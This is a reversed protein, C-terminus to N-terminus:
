NIKRVIGNKMLPVNFNLILGLKSKNLKIYTLLQAEHVPLINEVAKIELIIEAEVIIDARYANDILLEKYKIPIPVEEKYPLGNKDFEYCLCKRYTSELLGPGLFRHVEIALGIIKETLINLQELDRM